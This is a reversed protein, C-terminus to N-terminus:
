SGLDSSCSRLTCAPGSLFPGTPQAMKCGISLVEDTALAIRRLTPKRYAQKRKDKANKNM